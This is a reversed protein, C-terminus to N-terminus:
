DKVWFYGRCETTNRPTEAVVGNWKIARLRKPNPTSVGPKDSRYPDLRVMPYAQHRLYMRYRKKQQPALQDLRLLHEEERRGWETLINRPPSM